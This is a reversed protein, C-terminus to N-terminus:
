FLDDDVLADVIDTRTVDGEEELFLLKGARDIQAAYVHADGDSFVGLVGPPPAQAPSDLVVGHFSAAVTAASPREPRALVHVAAILTKSTNREDLREAGLPTLPVWTLVTTHRGHRVGISCLDYRTRFGFGVDIAQRRRPATQESGGSATTDFLSRGRTYRVCDVSLLRGAIRRYLEAASADFTLILMRRRHPPRGREEARLHVGHGDTGVPLPALDATTTASARAGGGGAILVGAALALAGVRSLRPSRRKV